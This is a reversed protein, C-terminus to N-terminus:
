CKLWYLNLSIFARCVEFCAPAGREWVCLMFSLFCDNTDSLFTETVHIGTIVWASRLLCLPFCSSSHSKQTYEHNSSQLFQVPVLPLDSGTLDSDGLSVLLRSPSVNKDRRHQQYNRSKPFCSSIRNDKAVSSGYIIGCPLARPVFVTQKWKIEKKLFFFFNEKM